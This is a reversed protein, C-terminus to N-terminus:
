MRRLTSVTHSSIVKNKFRCLSLRGTQRGARIGECLHAICSLTPQRDCLVAVGRPLGGRLRFTVVGQMDRFPRRLGSSKFNCMTWLDQGRDRFWISRMRPFCGCSRFSMVKCQHM